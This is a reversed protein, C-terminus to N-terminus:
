LSLKKKIDPPLPYGPFDNLIKNAYIKARGIKDYQIEYMTRYILMKVVINEIFSHYHNKIVPFRVVFDPDKAPYYNSSNVVKFLFLDPVLKYGEPLSFQGKTMENEVLEPAIYITNKGFNYGVINTMIKQYFHELKQADYIEDREFPTLATLFQNIDNEYGAFLNKNNNKLQDYYWSRRLLEKDIIIVDNRLGEVNQYYYSASIFYDWQYSLVISNKDTSNILEKTYDEFIYVNKQSCEEINFFLQYGSLVLAAILITVSPLNKSLLLESLFYFGFAAFISLSINALLYYTDIDHIDYNSAYLVTFLFSIGYFIFIHKNTKYFKFLGFLILILVLFGFEQPLSAFYNIFQKKAADFSSFLWVRYQKGSVHRIINELNVPNGWNLVPKTSALVPLISYFLGIVAIFVSSLKAILLSQEKGFKEKAFFIYVTAPILMLITMHNAFALGFMIAVLYWLSTLRKGSESYIRILLYLIVNLLFLHLSYVETSTSQLWFTRSLALTLGGFLSIIIKVFLPIEIEATQKNSYKSEKKGKKISGKEFSESKNNKILMYLTAVFFAYAATCYIAALLNMQFIKSIPLPILSFLYGALTFLPYGTPHAIGPLIQIAALEGSDIQVVTPALTFFYLVFVVLTSILLWYKYFLKM